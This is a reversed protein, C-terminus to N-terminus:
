LRACGMVVQATKFDPPRNKRYVVHASASTPSFLWLSVRKDFIGSSAFICLELLHFLLSVDFRQDVDDM